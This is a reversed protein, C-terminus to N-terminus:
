SPTSPPLDCNSGGKCCKNKIFLTHRYEPYKQAFLDVNSNFHTELCYLTPKLFLRVFQTALGLTAGRKNWEEGRDHIRLM